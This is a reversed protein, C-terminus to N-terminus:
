EGVTQLQIKMSVNTFSLSFQFKNGWNRSTDWMKCVVKGVCGCRGIDWRRSVAVRRAFEPMAFTVILFRERPRM